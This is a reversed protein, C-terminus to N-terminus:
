DVLEDLDVRLAAAIRKLMAATGARKGSEIMSVYNAKIGAKAALQGQSLGREERWVKVRSDGSLIRKMAESSIPESEGRKTAALIEDIRALDARDEDPSGAQAVLAEYDDAPMIALREGAPTLIIQVRSM